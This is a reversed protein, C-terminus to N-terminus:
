KVLFGWTKQPLYICNMNNVFGLSTDFSNFAHVPTLAARQFTKPGAFWSVSSFFVIMRAEMSILSSALLQLLSHATLNALCQKWGQVPRGQSLFFKGGNPVKSLSTVTFLMLLKEKKFFRLNMLYNVNGHNFITKTLKFTYKWAFAFTM